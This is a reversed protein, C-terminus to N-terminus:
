LTHSKPAELGKCAPSLFLLPGRIPVVPVYVTGNRPTTYANSHNVFLFHGVRPFIPLM